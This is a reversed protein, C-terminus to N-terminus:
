FKIIQEDKLIIPKWKKCYQELEKAIVNVCSPKMHNIYLSVDDRKLDILMESLLKPTLHKSEKALTEMNSSFSCEVVISRIEKDQNIIKIANKLSYTDSTILISTNKKKYIYGCSPITHDTQFAKISENSSLMYEKELEVEMYEICYASNDQLKIKSFDPWIVDNLFHTKIAQITQALACIVISKKILPFYNDVIYAIDCIHDLHSHTIWIKHINASKEELSELLNGADIMNEENLYFSSTGYGKSKTGFAGLVRISNGSADHKM